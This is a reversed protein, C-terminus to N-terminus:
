LEPNEKIARVEQGLLHSVAFRIAVLLGLFILDGLDLSLATHIIDSVIFIMLGALIYRGLQIREGNIIRARSAEEAKTEARVFGALFRLAGVLMVLIAMVDVAAAVLELFHVLNPFDAHLLSPTGQWFAGQDEM